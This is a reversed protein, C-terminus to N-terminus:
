SDWLIPWDPKPNNLSRSERLFVTLENPLWVTRAKHTKTYPISWGFFNHDDDWQVDSQKARIAESVRCGTWFLWATAFRYRHEPIAGLLAHVQPWSLPDRTTEGPTFTQIASALDLKTYGRKLAWEFFDRVQGSIRYKTVQAGGKVRLAFWTAVEDHTLSAL